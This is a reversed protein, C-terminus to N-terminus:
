HPMAAADAGQRGRRPAPRLLLVLPLSALALLMMLKFDDIFAILSAQNTILADLAARGAPTTPNVFTTAPPQHFMRNFPTVVSAIEAHNVQTNSVILSGMISIGIASGINRLLSFLATAETRLQAPLTAFTVTSLPVFLLGLGAGQIVGSVVVQAEPVDATFGSMQWLALVTLGFGTALILRIDVRGILQGVVFMAVMTGMGRPAMVLGATLVPYGLLTQLFPTLLSLTAFLLVGLVFILVIGVLFNRDRFLQPTVFPREATATHVVFLYFALGSVVTEAVIEGSGFWDRQEGRDLMLQLAGIAISLTLFGTWDLGRDSRKGTMPMFLWLGAITLAGVPVNIYFVYRWGYYETLWGGLTPGLIPGVMVGVGWLAM